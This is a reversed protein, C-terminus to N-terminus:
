SFYHVMEWLFLDQALVFYPTKIIVGKTTTRILYENEGWSICAINAPAMETEKTKLWLVYCM